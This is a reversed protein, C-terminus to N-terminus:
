AAQFGPKVPWSPPQFPRQAMAVLAGLRRSVQAVFCRRIASEKRRRQFKEPLSMRALTAAACLSVRDFKM